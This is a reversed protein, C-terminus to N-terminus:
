ILYYMQTKIIINFTQFFHINIRKNKKVFYFENLKFLYLNQLIYLNFKYLLYIFIIIM